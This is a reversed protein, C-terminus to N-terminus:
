KFGDVMPVCVRSSKDRVEESPVGSGDGSGLTAEVAVSLLQLLWASLSLLQQEAELCTSYTQGACSWVRVEGAETHKKIWSELKM